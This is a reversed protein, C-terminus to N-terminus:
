ILTWKRITLFVALCGRATMLQVTLPFSRYIKSTVHDIHNKNTGAMNLCRLDMVCNESGSRGVYKEGRFKVATIPM